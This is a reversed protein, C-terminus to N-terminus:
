FIGHAAGAAWAGFLGDITRRSVEVRYNVANLSGVVAAWTISACGVCASFPRAAGIGVPSGAGRVTSRRRGSERSMIGHPGSRARPELRCVTSTLVTSRIATDLFALRERAVAQCIADSRPRELVM